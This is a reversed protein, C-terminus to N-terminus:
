VCIGTAPSALALATPKPDPPPVQLPCMRLPPRRRGKMRRRRTATARRLQLRRRRRCRQEFGIAQGFGAVFRVVRRTVSVHLAAHSCFQYERAPRLAFAGVCFRFPPTHPREKCHSIARCATSGLALAVPPIRVPQRAAARPRSSICCGSSLVQIPIRLKRGQPTAHSALPFIPSAKGFLFCTELKKDM